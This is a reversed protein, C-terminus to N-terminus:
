SFSSVNEKCDIHMEDVPGNFRECIFLSAFIAAIETEKAKICGIFLERPFDELNGGYRFRWSDEILMRSMALLSDPVTPESDERCKKLTL